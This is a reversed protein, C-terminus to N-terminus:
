ASRSQRRSVVERYLELTASATKEWSFKKAREMGAASRHQREDSDQLLCAIGEALESFNTPSILRAATGATEVMSPANSTVVPAGCAMAELLPLGFGEYLSPYVFVQCASYLARLDEDALYGTFVVRERMQISALYSKLDGTLWGESGAIVLQPRLSTTTYLENVARLLNLLNKRPEITGVFLIFEDDLAFRQRIAVTDPASVRRFYARAAEPIAVVREAAIKLNESVERKVAESPTIVAAARRAMLPLNRRARRVLHEEHTEPFLLLSLDHITVVSPCKGWFPVTFNTGHFLDLSARKCYRPLGFAWWDRGSFATVRAHPAQLNAPMTRTRPIQLKAAAFPPVVLQFEEAPAISALAHALEFTYHGVGTKQQTLSLGDLGIRM